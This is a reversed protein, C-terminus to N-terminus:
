RCISVPSRYPRWRGDDLKSPLLRTYARRGHCTRVRSATLRAAVSHAYPPTAYGRGQAFANASGWNRWRLKFYVTSSDGGLWVRAPRATGLGSGSGDDGGGLVLGGAAVAGGASGAVLLACATALIARRSRPLRARSQM